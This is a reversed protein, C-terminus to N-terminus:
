RNGLILIRPAMGGSGRHAKMAHVPFVTGKNLCYIDLITFYKGGVTTSTSVDRGPVEHLKTSKHQSLQQQTPWSIQRTRHFAFNHVPNKRQNRNRGVGIWDVGKVCYKNLFMAAIM